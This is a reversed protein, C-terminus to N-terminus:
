TPAGGNWSAAAARPVRRSSDDRSRNPGNVKLTHKARSCSACCFPGAKRASCIATPRAMSSSLDCGASAALKSARSAPCGSASNARWSASGSVRKVLSGTPTSANPPKM